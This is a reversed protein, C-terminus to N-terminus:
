PQRETLRRGALNFGDKAAATRRFAKQKGIHEVHKPLWQPDPLPVIRGTLRRPRQGHPGVVHGRFQELDQGPGRTIVLHHHAKLAVTHRRPIQAGAQSGLGRHIHIGNRQQGHRVQIADVKLHAPAAGPASLIRVFPDVGFEVPVTHPVAETDGHIHEGTAQLVKFPKDAVKVRGVVGEVVAINRDDVWLGGTNRHGVTGRAKEAPVRDGDLPQRQIRILDHPDIEEVRIVVAPLVPTLPNHGRGLAM